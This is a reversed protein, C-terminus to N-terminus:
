RTKILTTNLGFGLIMYMSQMGTDTTSSGGGGMANMSGAGALELGSGHGGGM